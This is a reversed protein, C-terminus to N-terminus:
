SRKQVSSVSSSCCPCCDTWEKGCHSYEWRHTGNGNQVSRKSVSCCRCTWHWGDQIWRHGLGRPRVTRKKM